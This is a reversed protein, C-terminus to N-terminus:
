ALLMAPAKCSFHRQRAAIGAKGGPQCELWTGGGGLVFAGPPFKSNGSFRVLQRSPNKELRLASSPRPGVAPHSRPLTMEVYMVSRCASSRNQLWRCISTRVPACRHAWAQMHDSGSTENSAHSSGESMKPALGIPQDLGLLSSLFCVALTHLDLALNEQGLGRNILTTPSGIDDRIKRILSVIRKTPPLALSEVQHTNARRTMEATEGGRGM